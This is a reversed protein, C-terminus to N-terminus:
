GRIALVQQEFDARAQKLAPSYKGNRPTLELYKEIILSCRRAKYSLLYPGIPYLIQLAQRNYLAYTYSQRHHSQYRVKTTIKGVGTKTLVFDLLPCETSSISLSM